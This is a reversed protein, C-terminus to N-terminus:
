LCINKPNIFLNIREISIKECDAVNKIKIRYLTYLM